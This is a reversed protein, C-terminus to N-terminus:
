DKPRFFGNITLRGQRPDGPLPAANNIVGSHLSTGPYLILSNFSADSAFIKEFHPGGKEIYRAPPLGSKQVDSELAAKYSPYRAETVREFETSLHRYFGTGGHQTQNLYIMVALQSEDFGDFHPLRQIPTLREKPHTVISYWAQGMWVQKEAEFNTVVLDSVAECLGALLGPEVSARIGPYHPNIHAYRHSSAAEVVLEPTKFFDSVQVIQTQETGIKTLTPKSPNQAFTSM